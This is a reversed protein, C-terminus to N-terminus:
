AMVGLWVCSMIDFRKEKKMAWYMRAIAKRGQLTEKAFRLWNTMEGKFAANLRVNWEPLAGYEGRRIMCDMHLCDVKRSGGNRQMWWTPWSVLCGCKAFAHERSAQYDRAMLAKFEQMASEVLLDYKEQKM